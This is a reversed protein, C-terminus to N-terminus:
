LEFTVANCACTASVQMSPGGIQGPLSGISDAAEDEEDGEEFEEIPVPPLKAIRAHLASRYLDSM